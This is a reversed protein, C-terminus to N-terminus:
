FPIDGDLDVDFPSSPKMSLKAEALKETTRPDKSLLSDIEEAVQEATRRQRPLAQEHGLFGAPDEGMKFSIVKVGRCVAFGIEQQTWVSKSFGPTLVAIFADM